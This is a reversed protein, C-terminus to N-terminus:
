VFVGNSYHSLEIEDCRTINQLPVCEYAIVKVNNKNSKLAIAVPYREACCGQWFQWDDADDHLDQQIFFESIQKNEFLFGFQNLPISFGAGRAKIYAEKLTWHEFFRQKQQDTPLAELQRIEAPSFYSFLSSFAARTSRQQDDVDVGIEASHTIGCIIRGATHSLNFSLHQQNSPHNLEPKGYTGKIFRFEAPEVDCFESLGTRQMARTVLYQQRHRQHYFNPLKAREDNSLLSEYQLLLDPDTIDDPRAILLHIENDPLM